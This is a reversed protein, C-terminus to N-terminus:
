QEKPKENARKEIVLVKIADEIRKMETIGGLGDFIGRVHGNVDLLVVKDSHVFEENSEGDAIILYSYEAMEYLARKSGTLFHWNSIEDWGHNKKYEKLVPISDGAPNVTHSLIVVEDSDKFRQGLYFLSTNMKPCIGSCTSFFFNAVTIKGKIDDQTITEGDQNIFSFDEITQFLTDGDKTVTKHGYYPMEIAVPKVLFNFVGWLVPVVLIIVLLLRKGKSNM